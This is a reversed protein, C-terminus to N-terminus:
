KPLRRGIGRDTKINNTTGDLNLVQQFKGRKDFVELHDKHLGDLYLQDGKKLDGIDETVKYVTQGDYRKKTKQLKDGIERGFDSSLFENMNGVSKSTRSSGKGTGQAVEDGNKAFAQVFNDFGKKVNQGAERLTTGGMNMASGGATALRPSLSLPTDLLKNAGSKLYAKGSDIVKNAKSVAKSSKVVDVTKNVRSVVKSGKVVDVLKNAKTAVKAVKGAKSGGLTLVDLTLWAAAELRSAKEGTLPDKGTVLRYIDNVSLFEGAIYASVSVVKKWDITKSFNM